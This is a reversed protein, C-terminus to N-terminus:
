LTSWRACRGPLSSSGPTVFLQTVFVQNIVADDIAQHVRDKISWVFRSLEPDETEFQTFEAKSRVICPRTVGNAATETEQDGTYVVGLKVGIRGPRGHECIANYPMVTGTLVSGNPLQVVFRTGGGTIPSLAVAMKGAGGCTFNPSEISIGPCGARALPSITPCAVGISTPPAVSPPSITGACGALAALSVAMSAILTRRM